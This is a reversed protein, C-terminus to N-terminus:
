AISADVIEFFGHPPPGYSSVSFEIPTGAVLSEKYARYHNWISDTWQECATIMAQLRANAPYTRAIRDLKLLGAADAFNSEIYGLAEDHAAEILLRAERKDVEQQTEYVEVLPDAGYSSKTAVWTDIDVSIQDTDVFYEKNTERNTVKYIM